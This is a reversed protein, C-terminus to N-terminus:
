VGSLAFSRADYHEPLLHEPLAPSKATNSMTSYVQYLEVGRM